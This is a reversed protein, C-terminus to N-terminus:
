PTIAFIQSTKVHQSDFRTISRRKKCLTRVVNKGTQLKPFVNAIVFMKEKLINLLQDLSWFYLLFDVFLKQNELYTCEFQSKALIRSAKVHQSDVRKRFRQKKSLPRVLIKVTQLKPFINAIVIVKRKLINLIAYLNRFYFLFSLFINKNKVDNCKCQSHCIRM